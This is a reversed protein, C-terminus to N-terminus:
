GLGTKRGPCHARYKGLTNEGSALDAVAGRTRCCPGPPPALTASRGCLPGPGVGEQLRSRTGGGGAVPVPDWGRGRLPSPGMEQGGPHPSLDWARGHQGAGWLHGPQGRLLTVHGAAPVHLGSVGSKEEAHVAEYPHPTLCTARPPERKALNDPPSALWRVGSSGKGGGATRPQCIGVVRLPSAQPAPRM